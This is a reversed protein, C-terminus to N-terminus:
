LWFYMFNLILAEGATFTESGNFSFDVLSNTTDPTILIETPTLMGTSDKKTAFFRVTSLPIGTPTPPAISMLGTIGSIDTNALFEVTGVVLGGVISIKGSVIDLNPNSVTVNAMLNNYPPLETKLALTAPDIPTGYTGATSGGTLIKGADSVSSKAQYDSTNLVIDNGWTLTGDQAVDTIRVEVTPNGPRSEDTIIRVYDDISVSRGFLTTADTATAPLDTRLTVQGLLTPEDTGIPSVSKTIIELDTATINECVGTTGQEDYITFKRTPFTTISLSSKPVTTTGGIVRTLNIGVLDLGQSALDIDEVETNLDDLDDSVGQISSNISSTATQIATSIASDRATVEAAVADTIEQSTNAGHTSLESQTVFSAPDIPTGYTGQTSGGTLIKGSDALTTRAQYDSTNLVLENGWTINGDVDIGVINTEVTPNGPRSEDAVVRVYDDVSPERNFLTTADSINQPLDAKTAVQGLLTPEDSGMPSVSITKVIVSTTTSSQLLGTTGNGDTFIATVNMWSRSPLESKPITTDSGILRVLKTPGTMPVVIISSDDESEYPPNTAATDISFPETEVNALETMTDYLRLFGKPVPISTVIPTHSPNNNRGSIGRNKDFTIDVIGVDELHETIIAIADANFAVPVYRSPLRIRVNFVHGDNLIPTSLVSTTVQPNFGTGINFEHTQVLEVNDFGYPISRLVDLYKYQAATKDASSWEHGGESYFNFHGDVRRILIKFSM